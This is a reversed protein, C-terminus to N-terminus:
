PGAVLAAFKGVSRLFHAAGSLPPKSGLQCQCYCGPLDKLPSQSPICRLPSPNGPSAPNLVGKATQQTAPQMALLHTQLRKAVAKHSSVLM